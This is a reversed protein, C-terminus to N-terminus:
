QQHDTLDPISKESDALTEVEESPQLNKFVSGDIADQSNDPTEESGEPIYKDFIKVFFTSHIYAITAFGLLFYFLLVFPFARTVAFMLIVPLVTIVMMALTYPFHRISMLFSNRFTNKVSNYFKSLVPYIYTLVMLYLAIGVMFLYGFVKYVTSQGQMMRSFYLDFALLIGVALMILHIIVGQKLNQRFSHFFGKVIYSEENRAMKLTVYYMATISAGATVIPLCCIICIINLIMLDAVRSMFTFFKNDPNFLNNM